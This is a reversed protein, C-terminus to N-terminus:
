CNGLSAGARALSAPEDPSGGHAMGFRVCLGTVDLEPAYLAARHPASDWWRHAVIAGTNDTGGALNSDCGVDAVGDSRVSGRHGWASLPDTSPDEAMWVLRDEICDDFRFAEVPFLPLCNEARIANYEHAFSQLDDDTTRSVGHELIGAPVSLVEYAEAAPAAVCSAVAEPLGASAPAGAAAPAGLLYAGTLAASAASIWIFRM